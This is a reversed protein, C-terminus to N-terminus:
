QMADSTKTDVRIRLVRRAAWPVLALVAGVAVAFLLVIVVEPIAALRVFVPM